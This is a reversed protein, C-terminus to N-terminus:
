GRKTCLCNTSEPTIKEFLINNSAKFFRSYLTTTIAGADIGEEETFQVLLRKLLDKEKMKLFASLTDSVIKKMDISINIM